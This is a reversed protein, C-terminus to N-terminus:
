TQSNGRWGLLRACNDGRIKERDAGSLWPLRELLRWEERPARLPYDSGFLIREPGSIPVQIRKVDPQRSSINVM